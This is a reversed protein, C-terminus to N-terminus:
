EYQADRSQIALLANVVTRAVNASAKMRTAIAKNRIIEDAKDPFLKILNIHREEPNTGLLEKLPTGDQIAISAVMEFIEHEAADAITQADAASYSSEIFYMLTTALGPDMSGWDIEGPFNHTLLPIISECNDVIATANEESAFRPLYFQSKAIEKVSGDKEQVASVIFKIM